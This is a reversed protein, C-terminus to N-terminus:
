NHTKLSCSCLSCHNSTQWCFLFTLFRARLWSCSFTTQKQPLISSSGCCINSSCPRSKSCSPFSVKLNTLTDPQLCKGTSVHCHFLVSWSRQGWHPRLFSVACIRESLNIWFPFVCRGKVCVWEVQKHTQQVSCWFWARSSTLSASRDCHSAMTMMDPSPSRYSTSVCHHGSINNINFYLWDSYLFRVRSTQAVNYWWRQGVLAAWLGHFCVTVSLIM